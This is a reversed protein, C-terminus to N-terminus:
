SAEDHGKTMWNEPPKRYLVIEFRGCNPCKLYREGGKLINRDDFPIDMIELKGIKCSPCTVSANADKRFEEVAELWQTRGNM